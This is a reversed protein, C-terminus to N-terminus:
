ARTEALHKINNAQIIKVNQRQKARLIGIERITEM